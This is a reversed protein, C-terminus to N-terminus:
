SVVVVVVVVVVVELEVVVEVVSNGVDVLLIVEGLNGGLCGTMIKGLLCIGCLCATKGLLM